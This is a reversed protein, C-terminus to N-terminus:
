INNIARDIRVLLRSKQEEIRKVLYPLYESPIDNRLNYLVQIVKVTDISQKFHKSSDGSKQTISGPRERTYNQTICDCIKFNECLAIGKFAFPIDEYYMNENFCLNNNIIFNRNWVISCVNIFKNESLRYQKTCNKVNPIFTLDEGGVFQFGTYVIDPTDTAITNNIDELSTNSHLLDDSDLFIIYQGTAKKIGLNRAGGARLNSPTKLLKVSPNKAVKELVERGTTSCDDVIIIEYDKLTQQLISNVCNEIYDGTNYAPIIISFKKM